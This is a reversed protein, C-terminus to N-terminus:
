KKASAAVAVAAGAGVAVGVVLAAGSIGLLLPWDVGSGEQMVALARHCAVKEDRVKVAQEHVLCVMGAELEETGRMVSVNGLADILQPPKLPADQPQVEQALLFAILLANM